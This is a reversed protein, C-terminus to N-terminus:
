VDVGGLSYDIRTASVVHYDLRFKANAGSPVPPTTATGRPFWINGTAMTRGGTADQQGTISGKQGIFSAVDAPNAITTNVGLPALNFDNGDAFLLGVTATSAVAVQTARQSGPWQQDVNLKATNTDFPQVTEGLDADVLAIATLDDLDDSVGSVTTAVDGLGDSLGGVTSFLTGLGDSVATVSATTALASLAVGGDALVKGTGDAYTAVNGATSSAPGTVGGGSIGDLKKKDRKSLLGDVLQTAIIRSM